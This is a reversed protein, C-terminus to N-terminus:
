ETTSSTLAVECTVPSGNQCLNWSGNFNILDLCEGIIELHASCYTRQASFCSLNGDANVPVSEVCGTLIALCLVFLHRM